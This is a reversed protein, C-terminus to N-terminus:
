FTTASTTFETQNQLSYWEMNAVTNGVKSRGLSASLNTVKLKQKIAM